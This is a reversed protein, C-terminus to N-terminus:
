RAPRPPQGSDELKSLDRRLPAVSAGTVGVLDAVRVIGRDRLRTLILQWREREHMMFPLSDSASMDTLLCDCHQM